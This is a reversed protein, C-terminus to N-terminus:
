GTEFPTCDAVVNVFTADDVVAGAVSADAEIAGRPVQAHSFRVPAAHAAAWAVVLVVAWSRPPDSQLTKPAARYCCLHLALTRSTCRTALNHRTLSSCFLQACGIGDLRRDIRAYTNRTERSGM